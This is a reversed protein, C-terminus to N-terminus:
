EDDPESSTEKIKGLGQLEAAKCLLNHLDMYRCDMGIAYADIDFGFTEYLVGRYSRQEKVDGEYLRKCVSYFAYLKDDYNLNDWFANADQEYVKLAQQYSSRIEAWAADNLFDSDPM